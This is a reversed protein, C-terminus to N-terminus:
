KGKGELRALMERYDSIEKAEYRRDSSQLISRLEETLWNKVAEGGSGNSTRELIEAMTIRVYWRPQTRLGEQLVPIAQARDLKPNNWAMNLASVYGPNTDYVRLQELVRPLYKNPDIRMLAVASSGMRNDNQGFAYGELAPIADRYGRSGLNMAAYGWANSGLLGDTSMLQFLSRAAEEGPVITLLYILRGFIENRDDNDIKGPLEFFLAHLVPVDEAEMRGLVDRTGKADGARVVM